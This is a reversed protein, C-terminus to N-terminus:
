EKTAKILKLFDQYSIWEGHGSKAKSKAISVGVIKSLLLEAEIDNFSEFNGICVSVPRVQIGTPGYLHVSAFLVGNM